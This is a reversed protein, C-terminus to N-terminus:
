QSVQMTHVHTHTQTHLTLGISSTMTETIAATGIVDTGKVSHDTNPMDPFKDTTFSGNHSRMTKNETSHSYLFHAKTNHQRSYARLWKFANFNFQNFQFLKYRYTFDTLTKRLRHVSLARNAYLRSELINAEKAWYKASVQLRHM